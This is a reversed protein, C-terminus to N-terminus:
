KIDNSPFKGTPAELCDQPTPPPCRRDWDNPFNPWLRPQPIPEPRPLISAPCANCSGSECRWCRGQSDIFDFSESQSSIFAFFSGL